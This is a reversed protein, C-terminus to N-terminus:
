CDGMPAVHRYIRDNSECALGVRPEALLSGSDLLPMQLRALVATKIESTEQLPYGTLGSRRRRGLKYRSSFVKRCVQHPVRLDLGGGLLHAPVNIVGCM